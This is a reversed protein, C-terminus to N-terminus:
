IQPSMSLNMYQSKTQIIFTPSQILLLHMTQQILSQNVSCLGNTNSPSVRGRFPIYFIYPILYLSWFMKYQQNVSDEILEKREKQNWPKATSSLSGNSTPIETLERSFSKLITSIPGFASFLSSTNSSDYINM